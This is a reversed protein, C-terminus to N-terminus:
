GAFLSCNRKRTSYYARAAGITSTFSTAFADDVFRALLATKGVNSDGVQREGRGSKGESAGGECRGRRVGEEVRLPRVRCSSRPFVFWAHLCRAHFFFCRCVCVPGLGWCCCVCVCVCASVLVIKLLADYPESSHSEYAGRGGAYASTDGPLVALTM